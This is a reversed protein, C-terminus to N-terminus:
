TEGSLRAAIRALSTIESLSARRREAVTTAAAGMTPATSASTRQHQPSPKRGSVFATALRAEAVTRRLRNVASSARLSKLSSAEDAATSLEAAHTVVTKAAAATEREKQEVSAAAAAAASLEAVRRGLHVTDSIAMLAMKKVGLAHRKARMVRADSRASGVGVGAGHRVVAVGDAAIGRGRQNQYFDDPSTEAYPNNKELALTEDDLGALAAALQKEAGVDGGVENGGGAERALATAAAIDEALTKFLNVVVEAFADDHDHAATTAAAAMAATAAARRAAAEYHQLQSLADAHDHRLAHLAEHLRRVDHERAEIADTAAHREASALSLQLTKQTM